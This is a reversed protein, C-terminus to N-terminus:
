ADAEVYAGLFDRATFIPEISRTGLKPKRLSQDAKGGFLSDLLGEVM